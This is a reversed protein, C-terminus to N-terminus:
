RSLTSLPPPLFRACAGGRRGERVAALQPLASRQSVAPAKVYGIAAAKALELAEDPIAAGAAASEYTALYRILFVQAQEADGARDLVQSLLLYLGRAEGDSLRWKSRWSGASALVPALLELQRSASAFSIVSRLLALKERRHEGDSLSNYLSALVRLRAPAGKPEESRACIIGAMQKALAGWAASPAERLFSFLLVFIGEIDIFSPPHPRLFHSRLRATLSASASAPPTSAPPPRQAGRAVGGCCAEWGEAAVGRRVTM